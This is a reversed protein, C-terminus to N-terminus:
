PILSKVLRGSTTLDTDPWPGVAGAAPILASCAEPKNHLSWNAWGVFNQQMFDIWIHTEPENVFGNGDSSCTGWETAFLALGADLAVTAKDRLWGTHTNAYFHLAYAVNAYGSIPDAAAADVDQSWNPTGVIVVNQSGADRIVGIVEEAYAKVTPWNGDYGMPENFV